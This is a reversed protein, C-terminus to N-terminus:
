KIEMMETLKESQDITMVIQNANVPKRYLQEILIPETFTFLVNVRNKILGGNFCEPAPEFIDKVKQISTINSVDVLARWRIGTRLLIQDRL